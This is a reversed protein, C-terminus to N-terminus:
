KEARHQARRQAHEEAQPDANVAPLEDLPQELRAFREAPNARDGCRDRQQDDANQEKSLPSRQRPEVVEAIKSGLDCLRHGVIIALRGPREHLAQNRKIAIIGEAGARAGLHFTM